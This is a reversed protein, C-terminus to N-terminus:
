KRWWMMADIVSSRAASHIIEARRPEPKPKNYIQEAVPTMFVTLIVTVAATLIAKLM